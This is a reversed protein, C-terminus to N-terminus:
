SGLSSAADFTLEELGIQPGVNRTALHKLTKAGIFKGWKDFVYELFSQKATALGLKDSVSFVVRDSEQPMARVEKTAQILAEFFQGIPPVEADERGRSLNVHIAQSFDLSVRSNKVAVPREKGRFVPHFWCHADVLILEASSGFLKIGKKRLVDRCSHFAPLDFHLGKSRDTAWSWRWGLFYFDIISASELDLLHFGKVLQQSTIDGGNEEDVALLLGIPMLFHREVSSEKGPEDSGPKSEFALDVLRHSLTTQFEFFTRAVFDGAPM